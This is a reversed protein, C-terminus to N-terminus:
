DDADTAGPPPIIVYPALMPPVNLKITDAPKGDTYHAVLEVYRLSHPPRSNVGKVIAAHIEDRHQGAVEACVEKVSAKVSSPVKNRRGPPRGPGGRRLGATNRAM